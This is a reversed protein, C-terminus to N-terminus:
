AHGLEKGTTQYSYGWICDVNRVAIQIHTESSIQTGKFIPDGELFAGRVTDYEYGKIRLRDICDNIVACDLERLKSNKGRNTPLPKGDFSAEFARFSEGLVQTIGEDLLDFCEGLQIIAGVVASKGKITEEAWRVGQWALAGM